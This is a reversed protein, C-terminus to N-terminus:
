HESSSSSERIEDQLMKALIEKSEHQEEIDELEYFLAEANSIDDVEKDWENITSQITEENYGYFTM